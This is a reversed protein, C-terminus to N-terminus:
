AYVVQSGISTVVIWSHDIDYRVINISFVSRALLTPGATGM